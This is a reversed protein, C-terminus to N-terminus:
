REGEPAPPAAALFHKHYSDASKRGDWLVRYCDGYRKSYGIITGRGDPRHKMHAPATASWRVRMGRVYADGVVPVIPPEVDLVLATLFAETM